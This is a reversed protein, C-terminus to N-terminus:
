DICVVERSSTNVLCKLMQLFRARRHLNPPGITPDFLESTQLVYQPTMRNLSKHVLAFAGSINGKHNIRHIQQM